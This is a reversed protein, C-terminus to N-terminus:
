FHLISCYSELGTPDIEGMGKGLEKARTAADSFRGLPKPLKPGPKQRKGPKRAQDAIGSEEAARKTRAALIDDYAMIKARGIVTSRTSSRTKKENNQEFLNKNEARLLACDARSKQVANHFKAFRRKVPSDLDGM